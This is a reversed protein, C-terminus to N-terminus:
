NSRVKSIAVVAHYLQIMSPECTYLYWLTNEDFFVDPPGRRVTARNLTVQVAQLSRCSGLLRDAVSDADLGDLFDQARGPSWERREATTGQHFSWQINLGFGVLPTSSIM